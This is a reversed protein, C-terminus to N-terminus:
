RESLMGTSSYVGSNATARIAPQHARYGAGVITFADNSSADM